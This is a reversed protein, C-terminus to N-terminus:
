FQAPRPTSSARRTSCRTSRGGLPRPWRSSSARWTRSSASWTSTPACPTSRPPARAIPRRTRGVAGTSRAARATGSVLGLAASGSGLGSLALRRPTTASAGLRSLVVLYEQPADCLGGRWRCHGRNITACADCTIREMREVDRVTWTEPRAAFPPALLLDSRGGLEYYLRSIFRPVPHRLLTALKARARGRTPFFPVGSGGCWRM